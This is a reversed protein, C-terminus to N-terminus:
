CFPTCSAVSSFSPCKRGGDSGEKRKSRFAVCYWEREEDEPLELEDWNFAEPYPLKSYEGSAPRFAHLAHHLASRFLM